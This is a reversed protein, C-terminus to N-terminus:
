RSRIVYPCPNPQDDPDTRVPSYDPLPGRIRTIAEMVKEPEASPFFITKEEKQPQPRNDKLFRILNQVSGQPEIYTIEIGKGRFFPLRVVQRGSGKRTGSEHPALGGEYERIRASRVHFLDIVIPKDRGNGGPVVLKGKEILITCRLLCFIAIAPILSAAVIFPGPIGLLLAKYLAPLMSLSFPRDGGSFIMFVAAPCLAILGLFLATSLGLRALLPAFVTEKYGDTQRSM